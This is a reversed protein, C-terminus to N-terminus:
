IFVFVYSTVNQQLDMNNINLHRCKKKKGQQALPTHRPSVSDSSVTRSSVLQYFTVALTQTRVMSMGILM